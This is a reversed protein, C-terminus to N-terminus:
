SAGRAEEEGRQCLPSHKFLKGSPAGPDRLSGDMLPPPRVPQFLVVVGFRGLQVPQDNFCQHGRVVIPPPNLWADVNFPTAVADLVAVTWGQPARGLIRHAHERQLQQWVV